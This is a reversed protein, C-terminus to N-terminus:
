QCEQGSAECGHRHRCRHRRPSGRSQSRPNTAPVPASEDASGADGTVLVGAREIRVTASYPSYSETLLSVRIGAAGNTYEKIGDPRSLGHLTPSEIWERGDATQIERWTILADVTTQRTAGDHCVHYIVVGSGPAGFAVDADRAEVIYFCQANFRQQDDVRLVAAGTGQHELSVLTYDRDLEAWEYHLWNAAEKTYSSMHTPATGRPEGQWEGTGMLGWGRVQGHWKGEDDRHYRDTLRRVGEQSPYKSRLTHGIEHAWVGLRENESLLIISPVHISVTPEAGAVEVPREETRWLTVRSFLGSTGDQERAPYIVILRELYVNSPLDAGEFGRQVAAVAFAIGSGAFDSLRPGVSHWDERGAPGDADVFTFDFRARGYANRAYYFNAERALSQYHQLPVSGPADETEALIVVTSAAACLNRRVAASHLVEAVETERGAGTDDQAVFLRPGCRWAVIGGPGSAVDYGEPIPDGAHRIVAEWGHFVAHSLGLRTFIDLVAISGSGDVLSIAATTGDAGDARRSVGLAQGPLDPRSAMRTEWDLSNAVDSLAQAEPRRANDLRTASVDGAIVTAVFLLCPALLAVLAIHDLHRHHRTEQQYM